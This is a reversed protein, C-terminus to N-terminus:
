IETNTGFLHSPFQKATSGPSVGQCHFRGVKKAVTCPMVSPLAMSPTWDMIIADKFIMRRLSVGTQNRSYPMNEKTKMHDPDHLQKRFSRRFRFTLLTDPRSRRTISSCCQVAKHKERLQHSSKILHKMPYICPKKTLEGGVNHFVPLYTDVAIFCMSLLCSAAELCTSFVQPPFVSGFAFVFSFLLFSSSKLKRKEYTRCWLNQVVLLLSYTLRWFGVIDKMGQM